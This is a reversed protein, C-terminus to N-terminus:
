IGRKAAIQFLICESFGIPYAFAQLLVSLESFFLIGLIHLWWATREVIVLSANTMGDFIPLIFNSIPFAAQMSHGLAYHEAGNLQLQHDAANMTLFLLMLVMEFYLIYNADNKPWGKLERSLFRYINMLNRRIWFIIVGVLVLFALIEFAAILVNYFGGMFSFIRHTGFVGDIVIELVEINIIIFGLYVVVHLFGAVPKRVMKSQGFAIRAMKAFREGARDNRDIERGLKINRILRKINRAFFGVGALLAIVFLIQAIIHM